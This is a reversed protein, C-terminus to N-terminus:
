MAHTPRHPVSACFVEGPGVGFHGNQVLGSVSECPCSAYPSIESESARYHGRFTFYIQGMGCRLVERVGNRRVGLLIRGRAQELVDAPEELGALHGSQRAEVQRRWMSGNEWTSEAGSRCAGEQERAARAGDRVRGGGGRGWIPGDPLPLVVRSSMREPRLVVPVVSPTM